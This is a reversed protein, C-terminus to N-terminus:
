GGIQFWLASAKSNPQPMLSGMRSASAHGQKLLPYANISAATDMQTRTAANAVTFGSSPTPGLQALVRDFRAKYKNAFEPTRSHYAAAADSWNDTEDFLSKLFQAAYVANKRPDFMDELSEFAQGHWKYNIQFCGVDFSRAGSKFGAFTFSKAQDRSDFWRGQGEMNVTWPWPSFQGNKSRGTETRTLARLVELPVGIRNSAFRAAEDCMSAPDQRALSNSPAVSLFILAIVVKALSRLGVRKQTECIIRCQQKVNTMSLSEAKRQM